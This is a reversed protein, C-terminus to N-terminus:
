QHLLRHQAVRCAPSCFRRPQGRQNLRHVPRNCFLRHCRIVVCGPHSTCPGPIEPRSYRYESSSRSDNM